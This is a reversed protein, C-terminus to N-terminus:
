FAVNAAYIRQKAQTAQTETNQIRDTELKIDRLRTAEVDMMTFDEKTLGTEGVGRTPFTALTGKIMNIEDGPVVLRNGSVYSSDFTFELVHAESIFRTVFDGAFIDAIQVGSPYDFHIEYPVDTSGDGVLFAIDPLPNISTVPYNVRNQIDIITANSGVTTAIDSALNSAQIGAVIQDVTPCATTSGGGGGGGGSDFQIDGVPTTANINTSQIAVALNTTLQGITGGSISAISSTGPTYLIYGNLLLEGAGTTLTAINAPIDRLIGERTISFDQGEDYIEQITYATASTSGVLSIYNNTVGATNEISPFTIGTKSVGTYLDDGNGDILQRYTATLTITGGVSTNVNPQRWETYGQKRSVVTISPYMNANVAFSRVTSPTSGGEEMGSTGDVYQFISGDSDDILVLARDGANNIILNTFIPANEIGDGFTIHAQTDRLGHIIVSGTGSGAKRIHLGTISQVNGVYFHRDVNTNNALTITGNIVADQICNHPPAEDGEAFTTFGSLAGDVDFSIPTSSVVLDGVLKTFREGKGMPIDTMLITVNSQSDYGITNVFHNDTGILDQLRLNGPFVLENGSRAYCAIETSRNDYCLRAILSAADDLNNLEMDTTVDAYPLIALDNVPLLTDDTDSFIGDERACNSETSTIEIVDGSPSLQIPPFATGGFATLDTRAGDLTALEGHTYGNTNIDTDINAVQIKRFHARPETMDSPKTLFNLSTINTIDEFTDIDNLQVGNLVGVMSEDLTDGGPTGFWNATTAITNLLSHSVYDNNSRSAYTIEAWDITDPSVGTQTKLVHLGSVGTPSPLVNVVENLGGGNLHSQFRVSTGADDVGYWFTLTNEEGYNVRAVGGPTSLITDTINTGSIVLAGGSGISISNENQTGNFNVLPHANTTATPTFKLRMLFSRNGLGGLTYSDYTTSDIITSGIAFTTTQSNFENTTITPSVSQWVKGSQLSSQLSQTNSQLNRRFYGWLRNVDTFSIRASSDDTYINDGEIDSDDIHLLQGSQNFELRSKGNETEYALIPERTGVPSNATFEAYFLVGEVGRSGADFNSINTSDYTITQGLGRQITSTGDGGTLIADPFLNEENPFNSAWLENSVFDSPIVETQTDVEQSYVQNTYSFLNFDYDAPTMDLGTPSAQRVNGRGTHTAERVKIFFGKQTAHHVPVADTIYNTPFGKTTYDFANPNRHYTNTTDVQRIYADAIEAQTDIDIVRPNWGRYLVMDIQIDSAIGNRWGYSMEMYTGDAKLIGQPNVFIFEQNYGSAPNLNIATNTAGGITGPELWNTHDCQYFANKATVRDAVDSATGFRVVRYNYNTLNQTAYDESWNVGGYQLGGVSQIVVGEGLKVNNGFVLPDTLSTSGLNFRLAGGSVEFTTDEFLGSLGVGDKSAFSCGWTSVGGTPIGFFVKCRILNLTGRCLSFLAAGTPVQMYISCDRITLVGGNTVHIRDCNIIGRDAVVLVGSGSVGFAENIAAQYIPANALTGDIPYDTNVNRIAM